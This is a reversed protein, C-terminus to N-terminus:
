EQGNGTLFPIFTNEIDKKTFQLHNGKISVFEIKKGVNLEKLGIYDDKYLDTDEMKLLEMKSDFYGFWATERPYIVTDETFMVLM